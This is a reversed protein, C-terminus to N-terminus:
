GSVLYLLDYSAKLFINEDIWNKYWWSYYMNRGGLINQTFEMYKALINHRKKTAERFQETLSEIEKFFYFFQEPEYYIKTKRVLVNIGKTSHTDQFSRNTFFRDAIRKIRVTKNPLIINKECIFKEMQRKVSGSIHFLKKNADLIYENLSDVNYSFVDKKVLDNLSLVKETEKVPSNDLGFKESIDHYLALPYKFANIYQLGLRHDHIHNDVILFGPYYHVLLDILQSFKVYIDKLELFKQKEGWLHVINTTKRITNLEQCLDRTLILPHFQYVVYKEEESFQTDFVNFIREAIKEKPEIVFLLDVDSIGPTSISGFKYISHIGEEDKFKSLVKNICEGYFNEDLRLIKIGNREHM